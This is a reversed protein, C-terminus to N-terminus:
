ANKEEEFQQVRFSEGYFRSTEILEQHSGSHDVRGNKLIYIRDCSALASIRHSIIIFSSGSNMQHIAAILKSATHTDVQSVPDDLIVIPKENVLTRALAIRQKQGGSLTVGREGVVTDLGEPMKELTEKLCCADIIRDLREKNVSRGMLINDRITSSFLFSEQPMFAIQQRLFNLDLSNLGHGDLFIKGSTTNYLRPILQVLSTKGSGPPGTIGISMGPEVALMINSVVPNDKGYAFSVDKFTIHGSLGSLVAPHGPSAVEPRSDLLTNIRNLSAMGRQFLNTMWGIAIVPWALIGLYQLFAVLEGPTLTEKMVLFGGYFLIILTSLNFFLILLPKLLANVFARRLNKNFYDTSAKEVKNIIISEFNYVKIIRIGFFSERVLETLKSFSEQATKHLTHMKKGLNRTTMVLFPMPIMALATLTPHTWIMIGLTAGGLLLTDVIAILGFGFAMRVHNIDSTAHAMIDGTKTRNYYAMDLTLLHNFIEDRIGNELDRASGMLLNRWGYRLVAMVLGLFLIYACQSFLINSDFPGKALTDVAQRIIQPVILQTADVIVM